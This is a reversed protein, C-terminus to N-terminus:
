VYQSGKSKERLVFRKAVRLDIDAFAPGRGSNRGVNGPGPQILWHVSSPTTPVLRGAFLAQPGDYLVGPTGGVERGDVAFSQFPAAPNGLNPRDNFVTDQNDDFGTTINYPAGSSLSVVCGLTFDGPLDFVGALNFRHRQDHEAPGGARLSGGDAPLESQDSRGPPPQIRRSAPVARRSHGAPTSLFHRHGRARHDQRGGVCRVARPAAGSQRARRSEVAMRAAGRPAP